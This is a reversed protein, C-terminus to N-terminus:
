SNATCMVLAGQSYCNVNAKKNLTRLSAKQSHSFPVLVLPVQCVTDRGVESGWSFNYLQM